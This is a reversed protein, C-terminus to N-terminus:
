ETRLVEAPSVRSARRAPVLSAVWGVILVVAAALGLVVTDRASTQFLLPEIRNGLALALTLGLVVGVGAFVMGNTVVM